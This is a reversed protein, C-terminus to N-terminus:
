REGEERGGEKGLPSCAVVGDVWVATLKVQRDPLESLCLVCHMIVQM